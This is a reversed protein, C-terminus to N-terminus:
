TIVCAKKLANSNRPAPATIITMCWSCSMRLIPPKYLYIGMEKQNVMIPAKEMEAKKFRKGDLREAQAEAGCGGLLQGIGLGQEGELAPEFGMAAVDEGDVAEGVAVEVARADFLLDVAGIPGGGFAEFVRLEEELEEEDVLEAEAEAEVAQKRRSWFDRSEKM